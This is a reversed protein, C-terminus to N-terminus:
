RLQLAPAGVRRGEWCHGFLLFAPVMLVLGMTFVPAGTVAAAVLSAVMAGALLVTLAVIGARALPSRQRYPWERAEGSPKDDFLSLVGVIREDALLEEAIRKLRREHTFRTM